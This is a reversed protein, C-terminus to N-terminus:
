IRARLLVILIIVTCLLMIIWLATFAVLYPYLYSFVKALIPRLINQEMYIQFEASNFFAVPDAFPHKKM